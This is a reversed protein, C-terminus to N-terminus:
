SATLCAEGARSVKMHLYFPPGAALGGSLFPEARSQELASDCGLDLHLWPQREAFFSENKLKIRRQFGDARLTM